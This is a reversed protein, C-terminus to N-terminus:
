KKSALSTEVLQRLTKANRAGKGKPHNNFFVQTKKKKQLQEVIVPEFKTLEEDSYDYDYRASGNNGQINGSSSNDAYWANQNRGHMRVYFQQSNQASSSNTQNLLTGPLYKLEPMDCFALSANLKYLGEFVSDRIWERHRFEIVVPYGTFENILRSLYIRNDPTYHFSQPLQFLIASLAGKEMVPSVATKFDGAATQWLSSVEHTLLRNAKISFQIKGESREYFSLIREATPMNYFTNNLEVANFQTAYYSLFDARKLDAPYFVGKWEPYDYGSTGILFEEM